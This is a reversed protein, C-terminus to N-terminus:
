EQIKLVEEFLISIIPSNILFEPNEIKVFNNITRFSVKTSDINSFFGKKNLLLYSTCVKRLPVLSDYSYAYTIKVTKEHISMNKLVCVALRPSSGIKISNVFMDGVILKSGLLDYLFLDETHM